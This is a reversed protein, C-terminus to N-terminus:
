VGETSYFMWMTPSMNTAQLVNLAVNHSHQVIVEIFDAAALNINTSINQITSFAPSSQEQEGAILTAGNLRLFVARHGTNAGTNQWQITTGVTYGGAIPATLRGVATFLGGTDTIVQDFAIVTTIGSGTPISQSAAKGLRGRPQPPPNVGSASAYLGGDGGFTIINGADTSPRAKFQRVGVDWQLGVGIAAGVCDQVGTCPVLLGSGTLALLNGSAPDRKVAGSVNYPTGVQGDGSLSLDITATDTVQLAAVGASIVYPDEPTGTGSIGAGAGPVLVCNCVDIANGGCGCPRTM